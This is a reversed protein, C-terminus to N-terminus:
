PIEIQIRERGEDNAHVVWYSYDSESTAFAKDVTVILKDQHNFFVPKAVHEGFSTIQEAQKTEVDMRFGEYIYNGDDGIRAVDAFAIHKGDSSLAPSSIIPADAAFNGKPIVTTESGDELEHFMLQDGEDFSRYMLAEGDPTVDLDSMDYAEQATIQDTEGTDLDVRYIDFGHPQESAIPSYNTYVGAELYYLSQSDPSFTGETVLGEEDTMEKKEGSALDVLMLKGLPQEEEDEWQEVYAIKEGDLSFTPNLLSNGEAAEAILEANGGNVPATYVASKGEREYIFTMEEDDPSIDTSEGFGTYGESGGALYGAGWLLFFLLIIGTILSINKWKLSM